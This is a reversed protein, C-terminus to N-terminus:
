FINNENHSVGNKYTISSKYPSNKKKPPFKNVSVIEFDCFISDLYCRFDENYHLTWLQSDLVSLTSDSNKKDYKGILYSM